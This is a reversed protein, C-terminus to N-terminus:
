GPQGDVVCHLCAWCAKREFYVCSESHRQRGPQLSNGNHNRSSRISCTILMTTLYWSAFLQVVCNQLPPTHPMCYTRLGMLVSQMPWAAEMAESSSAAPSGPCRLDRGWERMMNCWGEPPKWTPDGNDVDAAAVVDDSGGPLTRTTGKSM